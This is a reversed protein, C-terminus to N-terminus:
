QLAAEQRGGIGSIVPRGKSQLYANARALVDSFPSTDIFNGATAETQKKFCVALALLAGRTTSSFLRHQSGYRVKVFGRLNEDEEMFAGMADIFSNIAPSLEAFGQLEPYASLLEAIFMPAGLGYGDTLRFTMLFADLERTTSGQNVSIAWRTALHKRISKYANFSREIGKLTAFVPLLSERFIPYDDPLILANKIALVRNHRFATINELSVNKGIPFMEIGWRAAVEVIGVGWLTADEELDVVMLDIVNEASTTTEAAGPENTMRDLIGPGDVQVSIRNFQGAQDRQLRDVTGPFILETGTLVYSIMDPASKMETSQYAEILLAAIFARLKAEDKPGVEGFSIKIYNITESLSAVEVARNSSRFLSASALGLVQARSHVAM